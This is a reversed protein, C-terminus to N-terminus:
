GGRKHIRGVLCVDRSTSSDVPSTITSKLKM